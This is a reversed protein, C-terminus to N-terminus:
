GKSRTVRSTAAHTAARARRSVATTIGVHAHSVVWPDAVTDSTACAGTSCELLSASQPRDDDGDGVWCLESQRSLQTEIALQPDGPRKDPCGM